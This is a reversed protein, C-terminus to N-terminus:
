QLNNKKWHRKVSRRTHLKLQKYMRKLQYIFFLIQRSNIMLLILFDPKKCLAYLEKMTCNTKPFEDLEDVGVSTKQKEVHGRKSDIKETTKEVKSTFSTTESTDVTNNVDCYIIKPVEDTKKGNDSEDM